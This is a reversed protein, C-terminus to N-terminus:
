TKPHLPRPLHSWYGTKWRSYTPTPTYPHTTQFTLARTYAVYQTNDEASLSQATGTYGCYLAQLIHKATAQLEHDFGDMSTLAEADAVTHQRVFASLAEARGDFRDYTRRLAHLAADTIEKDLPRATLFETLQHFRGASPDSKAFALSPLGLLISGTGIGAYALFRRRTLGQGTKDDDDSKM